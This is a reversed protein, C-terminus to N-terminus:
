IYKLYQAWSYEPSWNLLKKLESNDILSLYPKEIYKNGGKWFVDPHLKNVLELSSMGSTTIDDASILECHFGSIDMEISKSIANVLDRIDIFAGYEWYPNWECEPDKNRKNSIYSYTNEDWIGPARIALVPINSDASFSECMKESLLKSISYPKNPHCPYSSDIPLYKPKDEGQFIGLADVSSMFILKSINCKRCALLVNEMGIINTIYTQLYDESEDVALHIIVDCGNAKKCLNYYDLVDCDDKRDYDIIEYNLKALKESLRTGVFGKNGTILIKM